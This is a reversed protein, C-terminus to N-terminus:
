GKLLNNDEIKFSGRKIKFIYVLAIGILLKAAFLILVLMALVQGAFDNLFVSFTILNILISFLVLELSLLIGIINKRNKFIGIVGICFVAAGLLLYSEIGAKM